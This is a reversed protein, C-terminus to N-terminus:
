FFVDQMNNSNQCIIAINFNMNINYKCILLLANMKVDSAHFINPITKKYNIRIKTVFLCHVNFILSVHITSSHPLDLVFTNRFNSIKLKSLRNHM